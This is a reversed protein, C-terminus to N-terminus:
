LEFGAEMVWKYKEPNKIPNKIGMSIRTHGNLNKGYTEGRSVLNWGKKFPLYLNGETTFYYQGPIFNSNVDGTILCDHNVYFYLITECSITSSTGSMGQRDLMGYPDTGAAQAMLLVMNGKIVDNTEENNIRVNVWYRSFFARFGDTAKEDSEETESVTYKWKLLYDNITRGNLQESISFNLIGNTITGSGVPKLIPTDM